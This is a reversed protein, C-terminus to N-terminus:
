YLKITWEIYFFDTDDRGIKKEVFDGSEFHAYGVILESRKSLQFRVRGDYEHGLFTGSKGSRDRAGNGGLFRDSASALWYYSYGMDMKVTRSLNQEWRIKPTSVNEYNIYDNASWPRGFGYFKEFRGSRDDGSDQDGSAYAYFLSLRSNKDWRYGVEATL